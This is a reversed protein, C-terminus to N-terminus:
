LWGISATMWRANGPELRVPSIGVAVWNPYAAPSRISRGSPSRMSRRRSMTACNVASARASTRAAEAGLAAASSAADTTTPAPDATACCIKGNAAESAAGSDRPRTMPATMLPSKHPM